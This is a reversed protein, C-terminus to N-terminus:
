LKKEKNKQHHTESKLKIEYFLNNPAQNETLDYLLEIVKKRTITNNLCGELYIINMFRKFQDLSMNNIDETSINKSFYETYTM